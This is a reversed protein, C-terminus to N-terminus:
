QSTLVCHFPSFQCPFVGLLCKSPAPSAPAPSGTFQLQFHSYPKSTDQCVLVEGEGREKVFGQSNVKECGALGRANLRICVPVSWGGSSLEDDRSTGGNHVRAIQGELARQRKQSQSQHWAVHILLDIVKRCKRKCRNTALGSGQAWLGQKHYVCCTKHWGTAAVQREGWNWGSVLSDM